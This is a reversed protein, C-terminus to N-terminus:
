ANRYRADLIQEVVDAKETKKLEVGYADKIAKFADAFSWSSEMLENESAKLFDIGEEARAEISEFNVPCKDFDLVQGKEVYVIKGNVRVQCTRVCVCKM